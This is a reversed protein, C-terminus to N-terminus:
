LEEEFFQSGRPFLPRAEREGTAKKVPSLPNGGGKSRQGEVKRKGKFFLREGRGDPLLNEKGSKGAKAAKKSV